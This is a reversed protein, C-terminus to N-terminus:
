VNYSRIFPAGTAQALTCVKCTFGRPNGDSPPCSKLLVNATKLDGHLLNISHLYNMGAAIDIACMLLAVQEVGGCVLHANGAKKRCCHWGILTRQVGAIIILICDAHARLTCAGRSYIHIKIEVGDANRGPYEIHLGPMCEAHLATQLLASQSLPSINSNSVMNDKFCASVMYKNLSGLDAHEMLLLTEMIVDAEEISDSSHLDATLYSMRFREESAAALSDPCVM